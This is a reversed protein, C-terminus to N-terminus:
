DGNSPEGAGQILQHTRRSAAIRFVERTGRPWQVKVTVAATDSMPFTIRKDSHSFYGNGSAVFRVVNRGALVCSVTAGVADPNCRRGRLEIRVFGKPPRRNRLIAVPANQHIVALDLAGDNDLDAVVLGRGVHPRRFYAGGERSVNEFRRGGANRFLQAHQEYPLMGNQYFVHGNAVVIDPWSDGDFDALATGFGVLSRSHGALGMVVTASTFQGGGLNRYLVNDEHEFNTVWIDPRGDVDVDAVDLGMSGDHMGYENTAVGAQRGVETLRGGPGGLYLVNDTEDNAVYLDIWGDGNLDVAVVGLGNGGPKLGAHRSYDEFSGDGRNRYLRDDAASFRRPTCIDRVGRRNFCKRDTTPTWQLYRTVYLDPLGDDDVDTWAAATSWGNDVLHCEATVDRFRGDGMNRYLRNRGYCCVFLDPFGDADFDVVSCGHSYDGAAAIGSEQSSEIFKWNGLNRFIASPRGHVGRDDISGGGTFFLDLLGDRDFDVAAGGGGLSELITYKGADRGNRYVFDIGTKDTVNEFWDPRQSSARSQKSSWGPGSRGKRDDLASDGPNRDICGPFFVM